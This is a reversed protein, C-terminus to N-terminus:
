APVRHHSAVSPPWTNDCWLASLRLAEPNSLPCPGIRGPTSPMRPDAEAVMNGLRRSLLDVLGGPSRHAIGGLPAANCRLPRPGALSCEHGACRRRDLRAQTCFQSWLRRPSRGVRSSWSIPTRNPSLRVGLEVLIMPRSWLIRTASRGRKRVFDTPSEGELPGCDMYSVRGCRTSTPVGYRPM